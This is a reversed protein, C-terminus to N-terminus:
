ANQRMERLYERLVENWTYAAKSLRHRTTEPTSKVAAKYFWKMSNYYRSSIVDMPPIEFM